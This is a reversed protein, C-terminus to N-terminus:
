EGRRRKMVGEDIQEFIYLKITVFVIVISQMDSYFNQM